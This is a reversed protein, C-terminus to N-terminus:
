DKGSGTALWYVGYAVAIGVIGAGVVVIEADRMTM